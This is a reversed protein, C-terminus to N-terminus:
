ILYVQGKITAINIPSGYISGGINPHAGLQLLKKAAFYKDENIALSLPSHSNLDCQDKLHVNFSHLGDIVGLDESGAALHM